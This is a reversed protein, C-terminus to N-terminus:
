ADTQGHHSARSRDSRQSESQEAPWGLGTDDATPQRPVNATVTVRQPSGEEIQPGLDAQEDNSTQDIALARLALALVVLPMVLSFWAAASVGPLNPRRWLSDPSALIYADTISAVALYGLAVWACWDVANGRLVPSDPTSAPTPDAPKPHCAEEARLRSAALSETVVAILWTLGGLGYMGALVANSTGHPLVIALYTYSSTCLLFVVLAAAVYILGRLFRLVGDSHLGYAAILWTLSVIMIIAFTGLLGGTLVEESQARLCNTDAAQDAFLYATVALGFFASFLLKLARGTEPPKRGDKTSLVVVVGGFVFGAMVGALVYQGTAAM